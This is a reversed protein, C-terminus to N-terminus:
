RSTGYIKRAGNGNFYLKLQPHTTAYCGYKVVCLTIERQRWVLGSAEGKLQRVNVVSKGWNVVSSSRKLSDVGGLIRYVKGGRQCWSADVRYTYITTGLPFSKLTREGVMRKYTGWYNCARSGSVVEASSLEVATWTVESEDDSGPDPIGAALEPYGKVLDLDAATHTRAAIRQAARFAEEPVEEAAAPQAGVGMVALMMVSAIAGQKM